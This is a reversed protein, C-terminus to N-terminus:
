HQLLRRKASHSHYTTGPFAARFADALRVYGNELVSTAVAQMGFCEKCDSSHKMHCHVPLAKAYEALTVESENSVCINM